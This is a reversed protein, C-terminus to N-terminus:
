GADLPVLNAAARGVTVASLFTSTSRFLLPLDPTFFPRAPRTALLVTSLTLASSIGLASVDASLQAREAQHRACDLLMHSITDLVPVGATSCAACHQSATASAVDAAKAFRKLVSGTRARGMVLRARAVCQRHTGPFHRTLFAALGPFPKCVTLPASTAHAPIPAAAAAAPPAHTAVWEGHSQWDRLSRILQPTLRQASEASWRVARVFTAGSYNAQAWPRRASSMQEWYEAGKEWQPLPTPCLLLRSPADLKQVLDPGQGVSPYVSACLYVSTNLAVAPALANWPVPSGHMADQLAQRHLRKTPHHDPLAGPGCVRLLFALQARLVQAGVTPVYSMELVGLQHTTTPLQLAARLPRAVQAQLATRDAGSLDYGRGWFLIGYNFAPLVYGLVLSRVATFSAQRAHLAVRTVLASARKAQALAHTYHRTWSLRHTLWLGLYKYESAVTITFGCLSLSTFASADPHKRTSFVVLQTKAAGFRMRSAACWAELHVLVRKMEQCYTSEMSAVMPLPRLPHPGIAGDDAYFPPALHKCLPDASITRQLDNIFILFLLPSLVCGQPVGYLVRVWESHEDADVCRMRRGTLFSRLWRWAKGTIGADKVRHLLIAHDVRDFAKQIDLFLVPCQPALSTSTKGLVRQIGSLLYYIADSTSREKRFGFQADSFYNRAELEEALKRQVLHELVRIVISTMSIPRYSGPSSKLGEGKYLAMVNAERWAQPTVAHAWSFSYIAALAAWAADGVYKLFIPLVADPGPATNTHQHTCQEKVDAMTFTWADSPHASISPPVSMAWDDVQQELSLQQTASSPAPPVGNAVFGACLNDLSGAHSAPLAGSSPDAISALSTFASPAARKLTSWRLKSDPSMIQECLDSYEQLQAEAMIKKWARRATRLRQIVSLRHPHRGKARLAARLATHAANVGPYSRWRAAASRVVKTGVVAQCTDLLAREFEGYVEDIMLAATTTAAIPQTLASLSPQLPVLASTLASPLCAQWAEPERHHDWARRPRVDPARAIPVTSRLSLDVTFPIHDTRLYAAHRQTVTTVLGSDDSLVLDIVSRQDERTGDARWLSVQRTIMGPPNHIAFSNLTIWAALAQAAASVSAPQAAMPCQWDVHHCNFDGVVLLPLGHHALAAADIEATLRALHQPGRACQPPLYVVALLFPARHKPRIVACAVASSAPMGHQLPPDIRMSHAALLQVACDKHHLLSIGGGGVGNAGAPAPGPQHVCSWGSVRPRPVRHGSEVFVYLLPTSALATSQCSEDVCWQWSGLQAAPLSAMNLYVLSFPATLSNSM